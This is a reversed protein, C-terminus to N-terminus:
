VRRRKAAKCGNHAYGTKDYIKDFQIGSFQLAKVASDRGPSLGKLILEGSKVGMTKLKAIFENAAETAAHPSPKKANKFGAAGSSHWAVVDGNSETAVFMTNNYGANVYVKAFSVNKRTKKKSIRAM